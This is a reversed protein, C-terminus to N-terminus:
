KGMDDSRKWRWEGVQHFLKQVGLAVALVGTAVAIVIWAVILVYLWTVRGLLMASKWVLLVVLILVVLHVM